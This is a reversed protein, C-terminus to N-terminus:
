PMSMSGDHGVKVLSAWIFDIMKSVLTWSTATPQGLPPNEYKEYNEEKPSQPNAVPTWQLWNMSFQVQLIKCFLMSVSHSMCTTPTFLVSSSPNGTIECSTTAAICSMRKSTIMSSPQWVFRQMQFDKLLKNRSLVSTKPQTSLTWVQCLFLRDIMHRQFCTSSALLQWLGWLPLWFNTTNIVTWMLRTLLRRPTAGSIDISWVSYTSCHFGGAVQIKFLILFFLWM